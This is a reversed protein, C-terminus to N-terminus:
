CHAIGEFEVLRSLLEEIKMDSIDHKEGFGIINLAPNLTTIYHREKDNLEEEKCYEIPLCDIDHGGLKASLLLM